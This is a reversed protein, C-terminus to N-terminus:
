PATATTFSWVKDEALVNGAVDRIGKTVGTEATKFRVTYKTNSKLPCAPKFTVPISVVDGPTPSDTNPTFVITGAVLRETGGDDYSLQITKPNLSLTYLIYDDVTASIVVANPAIPNNGDPDHPPSIITVTPGTEDKNNEDGTITFSPFADTDKPSILEETTIVEGSPGRIGPTLVAKCSGIAPLPSAPVITVTMEDPDFSTGAASEVVVTGSGTDCRIFATQATLSNSDVLASLTVEPTMNVPYGGPPGNAIPSLVIGPNATAQVDVITLVARVNIGVNTGTAECLAIDLTENPEAGDNPDHLIPIIIDKSTEGNAFTLTNSTPTYDQNPTATIRSAIEGPALPPPDATTYDVSVAGNSGGVRSATVNAVGANELATFETQTFLITGPTDDIVLNVSVNTGLSAGGTPNSLTLAVTEPGEPSDDDLVQVDFSRTTSDGDSWNFTGSKAVYDGPAQAGGTVPGNNTTYNVAVAGASGGTRTVTITVTGSAENVSYSSASFQLTGPVPATTSGGGGGGGCAGVLAVLCSVALSRSAYDIRM